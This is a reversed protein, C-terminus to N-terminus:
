GSPAGDAGHRLLVIRVLLEVNLSTEWGVSRRQQLLRVAFMDDLVRLATLQTGLLLKKEATKRSKEDEGGGASAVRTVM